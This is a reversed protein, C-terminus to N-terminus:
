ELHMLLLTGGAKDVAAPKVDELVEWAKGENWNVTVEQGSRTIVKDPLGQKKIPVAICISELYQTTAGPLLVLVLHRGTAKRSIQREKLKSQISGKVLVFVKKKLFEIIKMCDEGPPFRKFPATTNLELADCERKAAEILESDIDIGNCRNIIQPHSSM